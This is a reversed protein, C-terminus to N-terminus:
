LLLRNNMVLEMIHALGRDLKKQFDTSNDVIRRHPHGGWAVLVRSELERAEKIDNPTPDNLRTSTTFFKEAGLAASQLHLILDYRDLINTFASATWEDAMIVQEWSERPVFASFDCLGRDFLIVSTRGTSSAIKLFTDEIQIQLQTLGIEFALLEEFKEPNYQAGANLLLTPVEPVLYVDIDLESLKTEVLAALSAKGGRPGGTLVIRFVNPVIGGYLVSPQLLPNPITRKNNNVRSAVLHHLPSRERDLTITNSGGGGGGPSASSTTRSIPAPTSTLSSPNTTSQQRPDPNNNNNSEKTKILWRYTLLLTVLLTSTTTLLLITPTPQLKTLSQLNM